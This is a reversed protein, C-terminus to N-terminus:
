SYKFYQALQKPKVADGKSEYKVKRPKRVNFALSATCKALVFDM